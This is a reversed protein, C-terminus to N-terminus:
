YIKKSHTKEKFKKRTCYILQHDSLGIDLTGVQFINDVSNTLIHDLITSTSKTVRTASKVLQTLGHLTCFEKYKKVGNPVRRGEYNLNVTFDGLIYVEQNDFNPTNFM